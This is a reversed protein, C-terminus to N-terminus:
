EKSFCLGKRKQTKGPRQCQSPVGRGGPSMWFIFQEFHPPSTMGSLGGLGEFSSSVKSCVMQDSPEVKRVCPGSVELLDRCQVPPSKPTFLDSVVPCRKLLSQKARQQLNGSFACVHVWTGSVLSSHSGWPMILSTYDHGTARTGNWRKYWEDIVYWYVLRSQLGGSGPWLFRFIWRPSHSTTLFEWAWFPHRTQSCHEKQGGGRIRLQRQRELLTSGLALWAIDKGGFTLSLSWHEGCRTEAM